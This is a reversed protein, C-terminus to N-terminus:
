SNISVNSIINFLLSIMIVDYYLYVYVHICRCTMHYSAGDLTGLVIYSFRVRQKGKLESPLNIGHNSRIHHGLTTGKPFLLSQLILTRNHEVQFYHKYLISYVSPTLDYVVSSMQISM